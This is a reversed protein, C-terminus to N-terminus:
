AVALAHWNTQHAHHVVKLGLLEFGVVAFPIAGVQLADYHHAVEVSSFHLSLNLFEERVQGVRLVFSFILAIRHRVVVFRDINDVLVLFM